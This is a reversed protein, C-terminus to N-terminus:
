LTTSGNREFTRKVERPLKKRPAVLFQAFSEANFFMKSFFGVSPIEILKFFLLNKKKIRAPAEDTSKKKRSVVLM